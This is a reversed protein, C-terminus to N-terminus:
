LVLYRSLYMPANKWRNCNLQGVVVLEMSNLVCRLKSTLRRAARFPPTGCELKTMSGSHAYTGTRAAFFLPPSPARVPSHSFFLGEPLTSGFMKTGYECLHKLNEFQVLLRSQILVNYSCSDVFTIEYITFLISLYTTAPQCRM